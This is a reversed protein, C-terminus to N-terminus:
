GVVEALKLGDPSGLGTCPDWGRGASYGDNNGMTIDHFAQAATKAYLKEHLDGVSQGIKQNILATLAAWLPAVASTGGIVTDQGNVRVRYGTAPDADGAVDPVGRHGDPVGAAQQYAPLPFFRSVGGGTAGGAPLENWVTESETTLTTGGCGVVHPSSAPFDVNTGESLGDKAGQDGSAAYVTVGLAAADAFLEDYATMAQETWAAEPGGWSISIISPRRMTDHLAAAIANYFGDSAQSGFYVALEAGQAIAGIVEIDLAVEGDADTDVGPLNRAGGVSVATIRPTSLRLNRFYTNLDHPQYGGGLEIIAICQGSGNADTPFHYHQAVEQPSYARASVEPRVWRSHPKAQRRNDLGLVARVAPALDAPLSIRGERGRFTEREMQYHGLDVEFAANMQSVTGALRMSRAAPNVATVTLGHTHAFDEVRAIDQPDAGFQSAFEARDTLSTTKAGKASTRKGKSGQNAAGTETRRRLVLTVEVPSDPHADRVRRAGEPVKRESGALQQRTQRKTAM